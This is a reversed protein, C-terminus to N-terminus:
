DTNRKWGKEREKLMSDALNYAWQATKDPSDTHALGSIAQGAFYDRLTMGGFGCEVMEEPPIDTGEFHDSRVPFAPGGTRDKM